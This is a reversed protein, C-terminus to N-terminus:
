RRAQVAQLQDLLQNARARVGQDTSRALRDLLEVQPPNFRALAEVAALRMQEDPDGTAQFIHKLVSPQSSMGLALLAARRVPVPLSSNAKVEMLTQVGQGAELMRDKIAKGLAMVVASRAREDQGASGLYDRVIGLAADGHASTTLNLAMAYRAVPHAAGHIVERCAALAAMSRVRALVAALQSAAQPQQEQMLRSVVPEVSPTGVAVLAARAHTRTADDGTTVLLEILPEVARSDGAEALRRIAALVVRRDPHRLVKLLASLESDPLRQPLGGDQDAHQSRLWALGQKARENHPNIELVRELCRMSLEPDDLVFSLWLFAQENDPEHLTAGELLMRAEDRNGSRAAAIGMELLDM